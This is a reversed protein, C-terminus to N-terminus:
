VAGTRAFTQQVLINTNVTPTTTLTYISGSTATFDTGNFQLVGNNYLNFANINYSFNYNDQGITTFVDVNVPTGNAVGLNNPTWQIVELYGSTNGIFTITQDSLNYDQANVVTGNIFLLEFGDTITFGSATYSAQNTLNVSNRNFSNYVSNTPIITGSTSQSGTTTNAYSVTSSTCDTVTYTGNYGAPVVGSITISQGVSFPPVSRVAFTLTAISGTGSAASTVLSVSSTSKMSVITIKDGTTAGVSLTVTGTSGSTDTYETTNLLCGNQFVLCQGSVYGSTRTVTFVTQGSTATFQQETYYFNDPNEFGVVRGYIDITLTAANATKTYAGGFDLYEQLGAVINGDANNYIQVQGTGVTTSGTQILQGTRVDLDINNSGDPLGAWISPDYVLIQTPVFAATGAAYDAFGTSFSFKRGTRNTFLLFVNTGFATPAEYWTYDAPDTSVDTNPTNHLGYYTKNRPNLNFGTGVIDDAYAVNLNQSSYQFTTPRWELLNSHPSYISKALSNVMRSFFYWNGAPINSLTINPLLTFTGWPNGSSQVESTGAFYMQEQLPNSFASYWIEAYQTIGSSSTTIQLVFNPNTATPYQSVVFPAELTGFFTPDGIGTNLAPTFQTINADDYVAPNYESLNLSANIMGDSLFEETIKNIRFGKATWGYNANTITVLDGAELQIGSYDIKCQVQLDERAAKLFRNALLQVRINDNVFYLSISQKNVPENAFLLEPDITQLDYTVSAFSDQSSGDPYKCEVVNFTNSIDIPNITISSVMNSDNLDMVYDISPSQVVVAWLANIENYRILCDCSSAMLQFNQMITLKTDVAGDFKFRPLTATGGSYPTYTILENGYANLADISDTDVQTPSLAAGYRTSTMYDYICDGVDTRANIVQFRTQQLNTVNASQSYHLHIIAFACNSMLKNADWQYILNSAQMVEIATYPSNVPSNSGNNYLYIQIRGAVATDTVDTSADYLSAVTYGDGEFNVLKGGYYINGFSIVDPTGGNETNTVESLALVFYLDQNDESISLDTIIGGVYASGYVVPLKNDGAPPIQQRSGPNPSGQATNFDGGMTQSALAQSVIISATMVVAYAIVTATVAEVAFAEVLYAALAEAM